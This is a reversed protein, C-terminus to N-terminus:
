LAYSLNSSILWTSAGIWFVRIRCVFCYDLIIRCNGVFGYGLLGLRPDYLDPLVFNLVAAAIIPMVSAIKCRGEVFKLLEASRFDLRADVLGCSFYPLGVFCIQSFSYWVTSPSRTSRRIASQSSPTATM